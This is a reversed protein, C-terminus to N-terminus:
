KNCNKYEFAIYLRSICSVISNAEILKSLQVRVYVISSTVLNYIILKEEM